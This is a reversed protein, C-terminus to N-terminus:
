RKLAHADNLAFYSQLSINKKADIKIESIAEIRHRPYLFAHDM